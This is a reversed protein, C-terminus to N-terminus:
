KGGYLKDIIDPMKSLDLKCKKGTSRSSTTEGDRIDPSSQPPSGLYSDLSTAPLPRKQPAFKQQQQQQQQRPFHSFAVPSPVRSRDPEEYAPSATARDNEREMLRKHKDSVKELFMGLRSSHAKSFVMQNVNETPLGSSIVYNKKKEAAPPTRKIVPPNSFLVQNYDVATDRKPIRATPLSKTSAFPEEPSRNTGMRNRSSPTLSEMEKNIRDLVGPDSMMMGPELPKATPKKQEDRRRAPPPPPPKKSESSGKNSRTEEKFKKRREDTETVQAVDDESETPGDRDVVQRSTTEPARKTELKPRAKHEQGRTDKRSNAMEEDVGVPHTVNSSPLNDEDSSSGERDSHGSSRATEQGDSAESNAEKRGEENEKRLDEHTGHDDEKYKQAKEEERRAAEEERKRRKEEESRRKEEERRKEEQREKEEQRRKREEEEKRRMAEARRQLEAQRRAELEEEKKKKLADRRLKEEAKRKEFEDMLRREESQKRKKENERTDRTQEEDDGHHSKKELKRDPSRRPPRENERQRDRRQRKLREKDRQREKEMEKERRRREEEKRSLKERHPSSDRSSPDSHGEEFLSSFGRTRERGRSGTTSPTHVRPVNSAEFIVADKLETRDVSSKKSRHDSRPPHRSFDKLRDATKREEHKSRSSDLSSRRSEICPVPSHERVTRAEFDDSRSVIKSVSTRKESKGHLNEESIIEGEDFSRSKSSNANGHPPSHLPGVDLPPPASESFLDGTEERPYASSSSQNASFSAEMDGTFGSFDGHDDCFPFVEDLNGNILRDLCQMASDDINSLLSAHSATNAAADSELDLLVGDPVILSQATQAVLEDRRHPVAAKRKHAGSECSFSSSLRTHPVTGSEESAEARPRQATNVDPHSVKAEVGYDILMPRESTPAQTPPMTQGTTQHSVANGASVDQPSSVISSQAVVQVPTYSSSNPMMYNSAHPQSQYDFSYDQQSLLQPQNVHASGTSYASQNDNQLACYTVFQQTRQPETDHHASQSVRSCPQKSFVRKGYLKMQNDSVTRGRVATMTSFENTLDRLRIGFDVLEPSIDFRGVVAFASVIQELNKDHLQDNVQIFVDGGSEFRHRDDRLSPAENCFSRLTEHYQRRGLYGFILGDVLKVNEVDM